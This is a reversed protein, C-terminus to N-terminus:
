VSDAYGAILRMATAKSVAQARNRVNLKHLIKQVHNKVTLPSICLMEGIEQNSKGEQVGRLIEIERGTVLPREVAHRRSCDGAPSGRELQGLTRLFAMHIHPMLLEIFYAHRLTLTDPMNAFFFFSNSIGSGVVPASGHGAANCFDYRELEDRLREHLPSSASIGPAILFPQEGGERWVEMALMVLGNDPHCAADFDQDSVVCSNFRDLVLTENGNSCVLGILIQHPVFAQLAGQTWLFFQHRKRVQLSTEIARLLCEQEEGSLIIFAGDM